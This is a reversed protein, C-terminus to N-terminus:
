GARAAIWVSQSPPSIRATGIAGCFSIGTIRRRDGCFRASVNRWFGSRRRRSRDGITPSASTWNGWCRRWVRAGAKPGGRRGATWHCTGPSEDWGHGCHVQDSRRYPTGPGSILITLASKRMTIAASSIGPCLMSFAATSGPPLRLPERIGTGTSTLSRRITWLRAEKKDRQGYLRSIRANRRTFLM